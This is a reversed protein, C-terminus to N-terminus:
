CYEDYFEEAGKIIIHSKIIEQRLLNDKDFKGSKINIKSNLLEISKKIEPNVANIYIDIDSRSHNLGRAYSGFLIALRINSDKIIEEFIQRLVPEKIIIQKQKYLELSIIANRSHFNKKLFFLKNRGSIKFDVINDRTLSDLIRKITMHNTKIERALGRAHNKGLRLKELIAFCIDSKQEM